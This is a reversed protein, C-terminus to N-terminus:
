RRGPVSFTRARVRYWHAGPAAGPRVAQSLRFEGDGPRGDRLGSGIRHIIEFAEASDSLLNEVTKVDAASTAGTMDAYARNAYVVRGKADTVVLGQGMSNVFAKSLED